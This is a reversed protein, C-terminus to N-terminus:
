VAVGHMDAPIHIVPVPQSREDDRYAHYVDNHRKLYKPRAHRYELSLPEIANTNMRM